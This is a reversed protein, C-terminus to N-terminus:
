IKQFRAYCTKNGYILKITYWGPVLNELSISVINNGILGQQHKERVVVNLVNYVYAHIMEPSQLQVNVNVINTAPNPYAQLMCQTTNLVQTVHINDCYEKVCGGLTIARLCVRYVGTDQFVYVPNNQYLVVPAPAPVPSIRTFTWREQLLPYNSIAYFYYKNPVYADRTAQYTVHISDCIIQPNITIEKCTTSVCNNNRFVTLCVHYVGPQAYHHDSIMSISGTGDGFSWTYLLSTNQYTPTFKYTLYNTSFVAYTFKSLDNCSPENGAITISDCKYRVCNPGAEVRLCVYYRGSQAYEHVANWTNASSGDGFFWIASTTASPAITTNTFYIKKHNLSDAHSTYSPQFNCSPLVTVSKCTEKICGTLTNKKVRLCVTYSGSQAYVHTPNVDYSVTGDGFTWKISDTSSLPTSLNTFHIKTSQLSDAHSSFDVVLNCVDQVIVTKCIESVCPASTPYNYNRKVRLCVTYVGGISYTHIPNMDYSVTGDGFTWKTSDTTNLPISTDTFHIKTPHSPDPSSTFNAQLTCSTPGYVTVTKCIESVCPTSGATNPRSVRICVNYVGPQLYVHTPNVDYSVTGDGFTWRITDGTAFNVTANHFYIKNLQISDAHWTFYAQLNCATTCQIIVQKTITDSCFTGNATTKWFIHKVSYTGCNAYTHSPEVISSSTGDGFSWSHHSVVTANSDGVLAPVYHVTTGVTLTFSFQANCSTGTQASSTLSFASFALILLTILRKM